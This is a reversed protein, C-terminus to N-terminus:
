QLRHTTRLGQRPTPLTRELRLPLMEWQCGTRNLYLIMNIVERMDVDQTRGGEKTAPIMQAAAQLFPAV